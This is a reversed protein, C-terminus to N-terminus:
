PARRAPVPPAPPAPRPCAQSWAAPVAPAPRAGWPPYIRTQAPGAALPTSLCGGQGAAGGPTGGRGVLLQACGRMAMAPLLGAGRPFQPVPAAHEWGWPASPEPSSSRLVEMPDHREPRGRWAPTPCSRGEWGAIRSQFGAALLHGFRWSALRPPAIPRSPRPVPDCRLRRWPRRGSSCTPGCKYAIQQLEGSTNGAQRKPLSDGCLLESGERSAESLGPRRQRAEDQGPLLLRAGPAHIPAM